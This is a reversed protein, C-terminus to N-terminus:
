AVQKASRMAESPLIVSTFAPCRGGYRFPSDTAISPANGSPIRRACPAPLGRADMLKGMKRFSSPRAQHRHVQVRQRDPERSNKITWHFCFRGQWGAPARYRGNKEGTADAVKRGSQTKTWLSGRSHFALCALQRAPSFWWPRRLPREHEIPVLRGASDRRLTVTAGCDRNM